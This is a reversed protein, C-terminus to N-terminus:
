MMNVATLSLEMIRCKGKKEKVMAKDGGFVHAPKNTQM